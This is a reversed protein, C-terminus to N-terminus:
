MISLITNLNIEYGTYIFFSMTGPMYYASLFFRNLLYVYGPALHLWLVIKFWGRIVVSSAALGRGEMAFVLWAILFTVDFLWVAVFEFTVAVKIVLEKRDDLKLEIPKKVIFLNTVRSLVRADISPRKRDAGDERTLHCALLKLALSRVRLFM